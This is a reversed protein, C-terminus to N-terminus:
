VLHHPFYVHPASILHATLFLAALPAPIFHPPHTQLLPHLLITKLRQSSTYHNPCAFLIAPRMSALNGCDEHIESSAVEQILEEPSLISLAFKNGSTAERM